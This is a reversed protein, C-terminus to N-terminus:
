SQAYEAEFLKPNNEFNIEENVQYWISAAENKENYAPTFVDVLQTFENPMLSHINGVTSTLISINGPMLIEKKTEELVCSKLTFTQGNYSQTKTKELEKHLTYNKVLANGTVMNIVGCMDPHNHHSIYEGKEFQLLSVQFNFEKHLLSHEFWNKNKDVYGTFEKKVNEYEPFNCQLLLAQVAKIYENQNWTPEYQKSALKTVQSLFADWNLGPNIKRGQFLNSQQAFTSISNIQLAIGAFALASM